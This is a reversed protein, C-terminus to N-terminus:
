VEQTQGPSVSIQSINMHPASMEPDSRDPYDVTYSNHIHTSRKALITVKFDVKNMKLFDALM